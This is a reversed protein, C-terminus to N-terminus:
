DVPSLCGGRARKTEAASGLTGVAVAPLRGGAAAARAARRAQHAPGPEAGPEM